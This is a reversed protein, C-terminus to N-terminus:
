SGLENLWGSGEKFILLVWEDFVNITAETTTHTSTITGLSM